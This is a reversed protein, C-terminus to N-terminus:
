WKTSLKAKVSKDTAGTDTEGVSGAISLPGLIKQEASLSHLANEGGTLKSTAALSTNTGLLDFQITQSTTWNREAASPGLLLLGGDGSVAYSDKLTVQLDDNIKHDISAAVKNQDQASEVRAKLTTESLGLGAGPLAFDTWATGPMYDSPEPTLPPPVPLATENAVSIDLGVRTNVSAPLQAGLSLSRAGNDHETQKLFTVQGFSRTGFDRVTVRQWAPVDTRRDRPVSGTIASNANDDGSNEGGGPKSSSPDSANGGGSSPPTASPGSDPDQKSPDDDPDEDGPDADKSNDEASNRSDSKDEVADDPEDSANERSEQSDDADTASQDPAVKTDEQDAQDGSNEAAAVIKLKAGSSAAHAPMVAALAVTAAGAMLISSLKGIM